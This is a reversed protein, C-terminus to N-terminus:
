KIHELHVHQVFPGPLPVLHLIKMDGIDEGLHYGESFCIYLYLPERSANETEFNPSKQMPVFYIDKVICTFIAVLFVAKLSLYKQM